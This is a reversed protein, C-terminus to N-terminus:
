QDRGKPQFPIVETGKGARVTRSIKDCSDWGVPPCAGPMSCGMEKVVDEMSPLEIGMREALLTQRILMANIANNFENVNTSCRRSQWATIAYVVAVILAMLNIGAVFVLIV